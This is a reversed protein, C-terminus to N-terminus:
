SWGGIPIIWQCYTLVQEPKSVLMVDLPATVNHYETRFLEALDLIGAGPVSLYDVHFPNGAFEVRVDRPLWFEHLFSATVCVRVRGMINPSHRMQCPACEFLQGLSEYREMRSSYHKHYTMVENSTGPPWSPCWKCPRMFYQRPDRAM